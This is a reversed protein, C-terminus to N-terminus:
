LYIDKVMLYEEKDNIILSYEKRFGYLSYMRMLKNSCTLYIKKISLEKAKTFIFNMFNKIIDFTEIGLNENIFLNLGECVNENKNINFGMKELELKSNMNLNGSIAAILLGNKYAGFIKQDEYPIDSRFRNGDIIKYNTSLWGKPDKKIFASYLCEEYEIFDSETSLLRYEIYDTQM